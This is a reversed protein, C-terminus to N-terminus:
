KEHDLQPVRRSELKKRTFFLIAFLLILLLPFFVINGLTAQGAVLEASEPSMGSSLAKARETDLWSGIVPQWIGTAFMGAGGVISMGLAGSKPIYESVFGIMTPWFYMVGIAFLIASIYVMSGTANSMLYIAITAIISSFWLVGTPNLKHIVPGAFYRGVAMLGTVMALILMPSAGSSGLIREVWQQTGLETTATLTMCIAIFVFLPTFLNKINVSTDSVINENKPFTLKFFMVGYLLTPILMLAIQLQWGLNIDTMFKSALAGIVIGGPFWVHFKNLMTTRNKTYMDAILPNCAAEVSGNAFGIFLTSILLGWFGSAFITLLLGALHSIFAIIMLKRPGLSNYVLGGFITAIPFGWFAMSNVFGLQTDSLRFETGLQALIGARIAFTMATVVLAICSATFLQTKNITSM